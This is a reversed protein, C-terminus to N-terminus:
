SIEKSLKRRQVVHKQQFIKMEKFEIRRQEKKRVWTGLAIKNIEM